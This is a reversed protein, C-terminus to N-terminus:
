CVGQFRSRVFAVLGIWFRVVTSRESSLGGSWSPAMILAMEVGSQLPLEGCIGISPLIKNGVGGEVRRDTIRRLGFFFRSHRYM